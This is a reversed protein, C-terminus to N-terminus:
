GSETPWLTLRSFCSLILRSRRRRLELAEQHGAPLDVQRLALDDLDRCNKTEPVSALRDEQAASARIAPPSDLDIEPGGDPGPKAVLGEGMEEVHQAAM